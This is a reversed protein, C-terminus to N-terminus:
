VQCTGIKLAWSLLCRPLGGKVCLGRGPILLPETRQEGMETGIGGEVDDHTEKHNKEESPQPTSHEGRGSMLEDQPGRALRPGDLDPCYVLLSLCPLLFILALYVTALVCSLLDGFGPRCFSLRDKDVAMSLGLHVWRCINTYPVRGGAM